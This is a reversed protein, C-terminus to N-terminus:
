FLMKHIHVNKRQQLSYLLSETHEWKDFWNLTKRIITFVEWTVFATQQNYPDAKTSKIKIHINILTGALQKAGYNCATYHLHQDNYM